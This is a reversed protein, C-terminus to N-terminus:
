VVCGVMPNPRTTYAGREALCLARAMMAHDTASFGNTAADASGM